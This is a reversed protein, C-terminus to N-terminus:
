LVLSLKYKTSFHFSQIFKPHISVEQYVALSKRTIIPLSSNFLFVGYTEIRSMMQKHRTM